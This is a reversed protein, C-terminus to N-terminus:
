PAQEFLPFAAAPIQATHLGNTIWAEAMGTQAHFRLNFQADPLSPGVAGNMTPDGPHFNHNHVGALVTWGAAHDRATPESAPGVRGIGDFNATYFYVRLRAGDPSRLVFALFETPSAFTDIREHQAQQLLKQLCTAPRVWADAQEAVLDNNRGPSARLLRVPDIDGVAAAAARRFAEYGGPDATSAFVPAEEFEWMQLRRSGAAQPEGESMLVTPPSPFACAQLEDARAGGTACLVALAAVLGPLGPARGAAPRGESM